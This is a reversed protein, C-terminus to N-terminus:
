DAERVLPVAEEMVMLPIVRPPAFAPSKEMAELVQEVLRAVFALQEALTVKLGVAEPVRVAVSEKASLPEPLGCDTESEPDVGAGKSISGTLGVTTMLSAKCNEAVTSTVQVAVHPVM